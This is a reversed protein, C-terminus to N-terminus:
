FDPDDKEVVKEVVVSDVEDMPVNDDNDNDDVVAVVDDDKKPPDEETV